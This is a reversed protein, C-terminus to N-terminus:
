KRARPSDDPMLLGKSALATLLQERDAQSTEVGVAPKEELLESLRVARPVGLIRVVQAVRVQPGIIGGSRLFQRMARDDLINDLLEAVSSITQFEGRPGIVNECRTTDGIRIADVLEAVV